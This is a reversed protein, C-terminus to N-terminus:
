MMSCKEKIANEADFSKLRSFKEDIDSKLQAVNTKIKSKTHLPSSDNDPSTENSNLNPTNLDINWGYKIASAVQTSPYEYGVNNYDNKNNNNNRKQFFSDFPDVAPYPLCNKAEIPNETFLRLFYKILINKEYSYPIIVYHGPELHFRKSV